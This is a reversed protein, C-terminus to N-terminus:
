CAVGSALVEGGEGSVARTIFRRAFDQGSYGSGGTVVVIDAEVTAPRRLWYEVAVPDDAVPEASTVVGGWSEILAPFSASFADRVEGPGPVGSRVIENGTFACVVTPRRTVTVEGIGGASLMAVHRPTLRVGAALLEAGASREQGAPRIDKGPEPQGAHLLSGDCTTEADESRVVAEAGTPLLSGTLVPLAEGEDLVGGTRHVNRGAAGEVPFALLRWPGTGRVAFGDMASSTYHPVDMPSVVACALVRGAADAVPVQETGRRAHDRVAHEVATRADSWSLTNM